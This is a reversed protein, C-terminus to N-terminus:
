ETINRNKYIYFVGSGLIATGIVVLLLDRPSATDPLEAQNNNETVEIENSNNNSNNTNTNSNNNKTSYYEDNNITNQVVPKYVKTNKTTNSKKVLGIILIILIIFIIVLIIWKILRRILELMLGGSRQQVYSLM